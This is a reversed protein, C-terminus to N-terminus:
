ARLKSRHISARERPTHGRPTTGRQSGDLVDVVTKLVLFLAGREGAPARAMADRALRSLLARQRLGAGYQLWRDAFRPHAVGLRVALEDNARQAEVLEAITVRPLELAKLVECVLEFGQWAARRATPSLSYTASLLYAVLEPRAEGLRRAREDAEAGRRAM